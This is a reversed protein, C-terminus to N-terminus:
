IPSVTEFMSHLGAKLSAKETVQNHVYPKVVWKEDALSEPNIFMVTLNKVKALTDWSKILADLNAETNLMVMVYDAEPKICALCRDAGQFIGLAFFIQRKDPFTVTVTSSNIDINVIRKLFADRSRVYNVVWDVLEKESLPKAM